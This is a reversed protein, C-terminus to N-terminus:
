CRELTRLQMHTLVHFTGSFQFFAVEGHNRMPSSSALTGVQGMSRSRWYLVGRVCLIRLRGELSQQVGDVGAGCIARFREVLDVIMSHRM